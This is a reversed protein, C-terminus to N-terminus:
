ATKKMVHKLIQFVRVWAFLVWTVPWIATFLLTFVVNENETVCKPRGNKRFTRIFLALTIIFGVIYIALM